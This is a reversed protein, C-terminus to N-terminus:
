ASAHLKIIVDKKMNIFLLNCVHVCMYKFLIIFSKILFKMSIKINKCKKSILSIFFHLVIHQQLARNMHEIHEINVHTINMSHNQGAWCIIQNAHKVKSKDYIFCFSQNSRELYTDQKESHQVNKSGKIKKVM